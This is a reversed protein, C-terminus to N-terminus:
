LALDLEGQALRRGARAPVAPVVRFGSERELGLNLAAGGPIAAHRRAAHPADPCHLAHPAPSGDRPTDPVIGLSEGFADAVGSACPADNPITGSVTGFVPMRCFSPLDSGRYADAGSPICASIMRVFSKSRALQGASSHIAAQAVSGPACTAVWVSAGSELAGTGCRRREQRGGNSVGRRPRTVRALSPWGIASTRTTRQRQFSSVGPSTCTAAVVLAASPLKASSAGESRLM